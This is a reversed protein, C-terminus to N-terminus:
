AYNGLGPIHIVFYPWLDKHMGITHYCEAIDTKLTFGLKSGKSAFDLAKNLNDTVTGRYDTMDNVPRTNVVVRVSTMVEIAKGDDDKKEVNIQNSIQVYM